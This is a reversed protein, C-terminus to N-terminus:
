SWASIMDKECASTPRETDADDKHAGAAASPEETRGRLAPLMAASRPRTATQMLSPVLLLVVGSAAAGNCAIQLRGGFM